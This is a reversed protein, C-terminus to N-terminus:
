PVCGETMSLLIADEVGVYAGADGEEEDVDVLRTSDMMRHQKRPDSSLRLRREIKEKPWRTDRPSSPQLVGGREVPNAPKGV